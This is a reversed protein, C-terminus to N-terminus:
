RFSLMDLEKMMQYLLHEDPHSIGIGASMALPFREESGCSYPRQNSTVLSGHHAIPDRLINMMGLQLPLDLHTPEYDTPDSLIIRSRAGM